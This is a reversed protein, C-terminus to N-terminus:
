KTVGHLWEIVCSSVCVCAQALVGWGGECVGDGKACVGDGKACVDEGEGGSVGCRCVGIANEQAGMCACGEQWVM